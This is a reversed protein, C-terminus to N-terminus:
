KMILQLGLTPHNKKIAITIDLNNDFPKHCLDIQYPPEISTSIMRIKSTTSQELENDNYPIPVAKSKDKISDTIM